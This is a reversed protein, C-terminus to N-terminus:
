REVGVLEPMKANVYESAGAVQYLFSLTERATKEWSFTQARKQAKERMFLNLADDTTISIIKSAFDEINNPDFYLAAGATVEPVVSRNSAAVACGWAM